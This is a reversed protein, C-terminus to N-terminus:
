EAIKKSDNQASLRNITNIINRIISERNKIYDISWIRYFNWGRDELIKKRLREREVPTKMGAYINGDTEIGLIYHSDNFPDMVALPINNKSYGVDKDVKFGAKRLTKYVDNIIDDTNSFRSLVDNEDYLAFHMYKKLLEPGRGVSNPPIKIDEPKMSSVIIVKKRARTIAVNLRKEGGLTNLPGFNMTIKGADDKGYAISLIIVDREDGQVNELNKIFIDDSNIIKSFVEDNKAYDDMIDEIMSRQAESLTVVGISDSDNLEERIIKVVENAETLNARNKGRGYKGEIYKFIIGSDASNKCASPFTELSNEYFYKNSFAILKDDISRYHWKLSIKELGLADFQDMINDLVVYNEDYKNLNVNEFFSTPPLQQTDGSIIVQKSRFLSGVAEPPTVQSAEDFIVIDFMLNKDIYSSVNIPSMMLCPKIDFLINSIEPFLKKLPKQFRKKANETKIIMIEEPYNNLAENKRLNLDSIINNRYIEMRKKDFEIFMKILREHSSVNFDKLIEDNKVYYEEFKQYFKHYFGRLIDNDHVRKGLANKINIGNKETNKILEYLKLYREMDFSLLNIAWQNLNPFDLKKLKEMTESDFLVSINNMNKIIDIYIDKVPLIEDINVEGSLIKRIKGNVNNDPFLSLITKAFVIKDIDEESFESHMKSKVNEIEEKKHKVKLAYEIDELIENYNKRSKDNSFDMIHNVLNKYESSVRKIRSKYQNKLMELIKSLDLNLLKDSRKKVIIDYMDQYENKLKMLKQIIEYSNDIFNKDFFLDNKLKIEDNMVSLLNYVMKLNDINDLNMDTLEVILPIKDMLIETNNQFKELNKYFEEKTDKFKEINFGIPIEYYNEILDTYDNFEGLQFEINDLEENSYTLIEDGIDVNIDTSNKIIGNCSDYVSINANDRKEHISSVYDNLIGTFRDKPMIEKKADKKVEVSKYLSKIIDSKSKNGHFELIFDSFGYDDLRKKVVDIAAKKESVFLVKKGNKISDVIINAITQSKGTGPPGNLIFSAGKQSALIAHLQSSDADMITTIDNYDINHPIISNIKKVVEFNGALAQTLENNKIREHNEKIDNYIINNTFSLIGLYANNKVEWKIDKITMKFTKIADVINLNENFNFDYKIGYEELKEKLVPNFFIDGAVSEIYYEDYIKKTMEVPVFFLQTEIPKEVDEGWRLIGFSIYLSVSGHEKISNQSRYYINRLAHIVKEKTSIIIEDRKRTEDGNLQFSMKKDKNVLDDFLFNMAPSKIRLFGSNDFYLLKNNRSTDIVDKEWKSISEEMNINM